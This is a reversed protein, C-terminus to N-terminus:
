RMVGNASRREARLRREAEVFFTNMSVVLERASVGSVVATFGSFAKGIEVPRRSFTGSDAALTLVYPGDASQLIAMSPVVLMDRPKRALKVWGAAGLPPPAHGHSASEDLRFRVLSMSLDWPVPPDAAAQIDLGTNPALTPFFWAPENATLSSLEDKYLLAAVVGSRELWAPAFIEQRLVRHRVVDTSYRPPNAEASPALALETATIAHDDSGTAASAAGGGGPGVKELAMGCIPCDGAQRTSVEPHMPCVYQAGSNAIAHDHRRTLVFASVAAGAALL